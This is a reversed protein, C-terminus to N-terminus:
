FMPVEMILIETNASTINIEIKDTNWVGLADRKGLENGLLTAGGEIIFVYVGNNKRKISYDAKSGSDFKGLYFWAEQHIWSGEDNKDPSVIQSFKGNINEDEIKLKDYRPEVEKKNPFVWIQFLKAEENSKANFESHMIGTGASMVQIEGAHIVEKNGMSDQHQLAGKRMITVIEMNDHPHMGFGMGGAITDDNLVRLMGFHIKEPNYWSAFSFSHWADLWGHNAHGRDEARHIIYNM